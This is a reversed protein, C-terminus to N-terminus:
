LVLFTALNNAVNTRRIEDGDLFLVFTPVTTIKLAIAFAKEKESLSEFVFVPYEPAIADVVKVFSKSVSDAGAFIIGVPGFDPIDEIM